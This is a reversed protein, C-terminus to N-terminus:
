SASVDHLRRLVLPARSATTTKEYELSRSAERVITLIQTYKTKFM